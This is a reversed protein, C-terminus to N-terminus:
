KSAPSIDSSKTRLRDIIHADDGAREDPHNSGDGRAPADNHPTEGRVWAALTQWEPDDQSTWHKGGDHSPDGGASEALPHLLLRSAASEGSSAPASWTSTRGRSRM